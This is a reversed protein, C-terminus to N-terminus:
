FGDPRLLGEEVEAVYDRMRDRSTLEAPAHRRLEALGLYTGYAIAARIGAVRPTFGVETFIQTLLALRSEAARSLTAAVDPDDTAAMLQVIVTPELELAAHVLLRHLRQRPDTGTDFQKALGTVFREEWRALAAQLLQRRDAFYHYFGGKTVGLRRAVAQVSLAPVGSDAIELLAADVWADPTTHTPRGAPTM